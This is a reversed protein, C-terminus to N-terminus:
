QLFCGNETSYPDQSAEPDQERDQGEKLQPDDSQKEAPQTGPQNESSQSTPPQEKAPGTQQQRTQQPGSPSSVVAVQEPLTTRDRRWAPITTPPKVSSKPELADPRETWEREQQPEPNVPEARQPPIGFNRHRHLIQQIRPDCTKSLNSSLYNPGTSSCHRPERWEPVLTALYERTPSAPPKTFVRHVVPPRRRTTTSAQQQDQEINPPGDKDKSASSRTPIAPANPQDQRRIPPPCKWSPAPKKIPAPPSPARGASTAEQQPKVQSKNAAKEAQMQRWQLEEEIAGERMEAMLDDWLPETQTQLPQSARQRQLLRQQVTAEVLRDFPLETQQGRTIRVFETSESQGSVPQDKALPHFVMVDGPHEEFAAEAAKSLGKQNQTKLTESVPQSPTSGQLGTPSCKRATKLGKERDKTPSPPTTDTAPGDDMKETMAMDAPSDGNGPGSLVLDEPVPKPGHGEKPQSTARTPSTDPETPSAQDEEEDSSDEGSYAGEETSSETPSRTPHDRSPQVPTTSRSDTLNFPLEYPELTPNGDPAKSKTAPPPSRKRQTERKPSRSRSKSTHQNEHHRSTSSSRSSEHQETSRHEAHGYHENKKRHIDLDTKRSYSKQCQCCIFRREKHINKIHRYLSGKQRYRFDCHPCPLDSDPTQSKEKSKSSKKPITKSPATKVVSALVGAATTPKTTASSLDRQVVIRLDASKSSKKGQRQKSGETSKKGTSSFKSVKPTTEAPTPPSTKRKRSGENSQDRGKSSTSNNRHRSSGQDKNEQRSHHDKGSHKEKQQHGKKKRDHSTTQHKSSSAGRDTQHQHSEPPDPRGTTKSAEPSSGSEQGGQNSHRSTESDDSM